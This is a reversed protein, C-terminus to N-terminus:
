MVPAPTHRGRGGDDNGTRKELPSARPFRADGGPGGHPLLNGWEDDGRAFGEGSRGAPDGACVPRIGWTSKARAALWTYDQRQKLDLNGTLAGL